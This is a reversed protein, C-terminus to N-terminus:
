RFGGHEIRDALERLFRGVLKRPSPLAVARKGNSSPSPPPPLKVHNPCEETHYGDLGDCEPCIRRIPRALLPDEPLADTLRQAADDDTGPVFGLLAHHRPKSM